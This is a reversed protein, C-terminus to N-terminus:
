EESEWYAQLAKIAPDAASASVENYHKDVLGQSNAGHGSVRRQQEFAVGQRSLASMVTDRLDQFRLDAVSPCAAAAQKRVASWVARFHDGSIHWPRSAREDIFLHPYQVPAAARRQRAANLRAVVAPVLTLKLTVRTKSQTLTLLGAEIQAHTLQLLDTQRQGYHIGFVIADALEPRGIAEAAAIMARIEAKTAPRIRGAPVPLHEAGAVPNGLGHAKGCKAFVTSLLARSARASALGHRAEIQELTADVVPTTVQAAPAAWFAVVRTFPMRAKKYSEVTKAALPQRLKRGQVVREGNLEPRAFFATFLDAMTVLAGPRALQVPPAPKRRPAPAPAAAAAARRAAIAPLLTANLWSEVERASYWRGDPWRLDQGKFGLTRLNAAPVFRPRDHRWAIHPLRVILKAAM